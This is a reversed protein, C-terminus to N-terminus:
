AQKSASNKRRNVCFIWVLMTFFLVQQYYCKSIIEGPSLKIGCGSAIGIAILMQAGYPILGQIICSSADLISAIRKKSCGYKDSLVKAIPGTVVIAVTNNATFLNVATVLVAIGAECSLRSKILTEIKRILYDVGGYHRVVSLMGGALIAVFATEAMDLCGKGLLSLTTKLDLTNLLFSICLSVAIAGTLLLIVNLGCVAAILILLYPLTRIIDSFGITIRPITGATEPGTCLYIVLVILAAPLAFTINSIFKDRMSINMTRTAAITTDSIMSINDGFMAGGIVCGLMIEPEIGLQKAIGIAIPTVAAITGCSTGIALSIFCSVAFVGPLMMKEPLLYRAVAVTSDVAGMGKALSAFVGALIFILCMLMINSNGMGRIYININHEFKRIGSLFLSSVSAALFALTMPVSYFDGTCLSLSLYLTAFLFFPILASIGYKESSNNM